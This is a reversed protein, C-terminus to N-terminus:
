LLQELEPAHNSKSIPRAECLWIQAVLVEKQSKCEGTLEVSDCLNLQAVKDTVQLKITKGKMEFQVWKKEWDICMPGLKSLWDLGLIFDYGKVPLV